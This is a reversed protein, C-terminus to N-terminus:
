VDAVAVQTCCPAAPITQPLTLIGIRLARAQTALETDDLEDYHDPEPERATPIPARGTRRACPMPLQSSGERTTAAPEAASPPARSATAQSSSASELRVPHWPPDTHTM